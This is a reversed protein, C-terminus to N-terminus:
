INDIRKFSGMGLGSQRGSNTIETIDMSQSHLRSLDVKRCPVCDFLAKYAKRYDQSFIIYIFPNIACNLYALFNGMFRLTPTRFCSLSDFTSILMILRSPLWLLAFTLVAIILMKLVNKKAKMELQQNATTTQGPIKRMWIKYIIASYFVIIELLPLAYFLIVDAASYVTNYIIPIDPEWFELCYWSGRFEYIRNVYLLITGPLAPVFWTAAILWIAKRSNIARRLPFFIAIFRDAAIVALTLIAANLSCGNLFVHLKCIITGALGSIITFYDYIRFQGRYNFAKQQSYFLKFVKLYALYSKVIVFRNKSPHDIECIYEM